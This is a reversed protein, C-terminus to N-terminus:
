QHCIFVPMGIESIIMNAMSEQWFRALASRGYAGMVVISGTSHHRLYKSLEEAVDGRLLQYRVNSYHRSLLERINTNEKLHTGTTEEISLLTAPYGSWEPLVYNFMKIAYASSHSGDYSLITNKIEHYRAPVVMIPCHADALIERLSSSPHGPLLSSINMKADLIILDAYASEHILGAVPSAEDFHVHHAIHEEACKDNFLKINKEIEEREEKLLIAYESAIQLPPGLLTPYTFGSFKLDRMFVGVLLSDSKKAIEIGYALTSPSLRNGELALLIKKKM